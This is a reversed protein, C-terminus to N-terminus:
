CPCRRSKLPSDSTKKAKKMLKQKTHVQKAKKMVKPSVVPEVVPSKSIWPCYFILQDIINLTNPIKHLMFNLNSIMKYTDEDLTFVMSDIRSIIEEAVSVIDEDVLSPCHKFIDVIECYDKTPINKFDLELRLDSIREKFLANVVTDM